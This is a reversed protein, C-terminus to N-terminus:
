QNKSHRCYGILFGVGKSCIPLVKYKLKTVNVVSPNPSISGIFKKPLVKIHQSATMPAKKIAKNTTTNALFIIRYGIM